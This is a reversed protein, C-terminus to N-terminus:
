VHLIEKEKNAIANDVNKVNEDTIKQVEDSATHHEDQGLEGDKEMKKFSDMVDRRVNRLSIKAKEGYSHAIKVLEKRREESLNPLPVRIIQGDVATTLGLDAHSIGKEVSKVMSKDWVQVLLLRAEPATVTAVQNLPMRDGYAEVTVSDLLNTSARGARLGKLDHELSAIAGDMRKKLEAIIKSKDM